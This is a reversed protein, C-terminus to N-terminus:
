GRQAVRAGLALMYLVCAIIVHPYFVAPLRVQIANMLADYCGASRFRTCQGHREHACCSRPVYSRAAQLPNDLMQAGLSMTTWDTANNIGCCNMQIHLTDVPKRAHDDVMYQYMAFKLDEPLARRHDRSARLEVYVDIMLAGIALVCHIIFITLATSARPTMSRSKKVNTAIAGGFIGLMAIFVYIAYRCFEIVRWSTSIPQAYKVPSPAYALSLGVITITAFTLGLSGLI